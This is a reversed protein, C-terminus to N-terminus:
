ILIFPNMHYKHLRKREVSTDGLVKAKKMDETLKLISLFYFGHDFLLLMGRFVNTQKAAKVENRGM